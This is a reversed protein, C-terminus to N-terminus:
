LCLMEKENEGGFVMLGISLVVFPSLYLITRINGANPGTINMSNVVLVTVYGIVSFLFFVALLIHPPTKTFKSTEKRM